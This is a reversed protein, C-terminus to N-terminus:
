QKVELISNALDFWYKLEKPNIVEISTYSLNNDIYLNAPEGYRVVVIPTFNDVKYADTWHESNHFVIQAGRITYYKFHGYKM